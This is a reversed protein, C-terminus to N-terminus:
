RLTAGRGTAMDALRALAEANRPKLLLAQLPHPLVKAPGGITTEEMVVRTSQENLPTLTLTIRVRGLVWLRAELELRRDQEVARVVTIDRIQLPWPGSGHHLRTGVAPWTPDVDRIHSAGVVWGAYSWGDALVEFVQHAPAPITREIQTMGGSVRRAARAVKEPGINERPDM